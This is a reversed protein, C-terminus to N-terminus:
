TMEVFIAQGSGAILKSFWPSLTRLWGIRRTQVVPWFSVSLLLAPEIASSRMDGQSRSFWPDEVEEVEHGEARPFRRIEVV